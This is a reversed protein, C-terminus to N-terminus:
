VASRQRAQMRTETSPAENGEKRWPTPVCEPIPPSCQSRQEQQQQQRLLPPTSGKGYLACLQNTQQPSLRMLKKKREGKGGNTSEGPAHSPHKAECELKSPWEEGWGMVDEGHPRDKGGKRERYDTEGKTKMTTKAQVAYTVM